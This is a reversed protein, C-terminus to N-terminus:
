SVAALMEEWHDIPLLHGEGPYTLFDVRPIVAALYDLGLRDTDTDEEGWWLHVPQRIDAASFSGATGQRAGERVLAKMAAFTGPTALVRDDAVGWSSVFMSEWGDGEFWADDAAIAALAAPVDRALLALVIRDEPVLAEIAGPM